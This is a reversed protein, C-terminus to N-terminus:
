AAELLELERTFEELGASYSGPPIGLSLLIQGIVRSTDPASEVPFHSVEVLGASIKKFRGAEELGGLYRIQNTGEFVLRATLEATQEGGEDLRIWEELGALTRAAPIKALTPGLVVVWPGSLAPAQSRFGQWIELVAGSQREELGAPKFSFDAVTIPPTEYDGRYTKVRVEIRGGADPATVSVLVSIGRHEAKAGKLDGDSPSDAHRPDGVAHLHFEGFWEGDHLGAHAFDRASEKYHLNAAASRMPVFWSPLDLWGLRGDKRWGIMGGHESYPDNLDNLGIPHLEAQVQPDQLQRKLYESRIRYLDPDVPIRGRGVEYLFGPSQGLQQLFAADALRLRYGRPTLVKLAAEADLDMLRLLAGSPDLSFKDLFRFLETLGIRFDAFFFLRKFRRAAETGELGRWEQDLTVLWAPSDAPDFVCGIESQFREALDLVGADLWGEIKPGLLAKKGRKPDMLKLFREILALRDKIDAMRSLHEFLETGPSGGLVLDEQTLWGEGLGEAVARILRGDKRNLLKELFPDHGGPGHFYRYAGRSLQHLTAAMERVDPRDRLYGLVGSAQPDGMEIRYGTEQHLVAIEDWPTGPDMWKTINKEEVERSPDAPDWGAKRLRQIMQWFLTERDADGWRNFQHGVWLWLPVPGPDTFRWGTERHAKQLFAILEPERSTLALAEEWTEQNFRLGIKKELAAISAQVEQLSGLRRLDLFRFRLLKTVDDTPGLRQVVWHFVALSKGDSAFELLYPLVKAPRRALYPFDKRWQEKEKLLLDMAGLELPGPNFKDSVFDKKEEEELPRGILEELKTFFFGLRELGQNAVGSYRELYVERSAEAFALALTVNLGQGAARSSPSSGYWRFTEILEKREKEQEPTALERLRLAEGVGGGLELVGLAERLERALDIVQKSGVPDAALNELMWFDAYNVQGIPERLWVGQYLRYGAEQLGLVFPAVALTQALRQPSSFIQRLSEADRPDRPEYRYAEVFKRYEEGWMSQYADILADPFHTLWGAHSTIYEVLEANKQAKEKPDTTKRINQAKGTIVGIVGYEFRDPDRIKLPELEQSFVFRGSRGPRKQWERHRERMVEIAKDLAKIDTPIREDPGHPEWLPFSWDSLEKESVPAGPPAEQGFLPYNSGLALGAGAAGVTKLFGRRTFRGPGEELGAPVPSGAPRPKDASVENRPRGKGSLKIPIGRSPDERRLRNEEEVWDYYRHRYLTTLGVGARQALERVELFGGPHSRIAGQIAAVPYKVHRKPKKYRRVWLAALPPNLPKRRKNEARVLRFIRHRYLTKAALGLTEAFEEVRFEGGPHSQLGAVIEGQTKQWLPDGRKGEELGATTGYIKLMERFNPLGVKAKRKKNFVEVGAPSPITEQRALWRQLALKYSVQEPDPSVIWLYKKQIQSWIQEQTGHNLESLFRIVNRRAAEVLAPDGYAVPLFLYALFASQNVNAAQIAKKRWSSFNGQAVDSFNWLGGTIFFLGEPKVGKRRLFLDAAAGIERGEDEWAGLSPEVGELVYIAYEVDSDDVAYGKLASGLPIVATRVRENNFVRLAEGEILPGMEKLIRRRWASQPTVQGAGKEGSLLSRLAKAYDNNEKLQPEDMEELGSPKPKTVSLPSLGLKGPLFKRTLSLAALEVPIMAAAVLYSPVLWAAGLVQRRELRSRSGLLAMGTMGTTGLALAVMLQGAISGADQFLLVDSWFSADGPAVWALNRAAATCARALLWTTGFVTSGIAALEAGVLLGLLRFHNLEDLLFFRERAAVRLFARVWRTRQRILAGATKPVATKVVLDKELFGVSYGYKQLVWTLHLDQALDKGRLVHPLMKHLIRSDFVGGAGSIVPQQRRWSMLRKIFHLTRYSVVQVRELWTSRPGLWPEVPLSAAAWGREEMEALSARIAGELTQHGALPELFTDADTLILYDPLPGEKKLQDLAHLYAGIIRGNAPSFFARLGEKEQWRQLIEATDDDSGDDVIAVQKLYGNRKIEQLTEEM